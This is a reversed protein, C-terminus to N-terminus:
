LQAKNRTHIPKDTNAFRSLASIYKFGYKRTFEIIGKSM